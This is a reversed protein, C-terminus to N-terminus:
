NDFLSAIRTIRKYGFGGSKPNKGGTVTRIMVNRELGSKERSGKGGM